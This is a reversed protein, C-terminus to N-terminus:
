PRPETKAAQSGRALSAKAERTLPADAAGQALSQLGERAEDTGIKELVMVARTQRLREPSLERRLVRGLLEEVRRRAEPSPRKKLAADLSSEAREGLNDLERMAAERLAFQDSDLDALLKDLRKPDVGEAPRLRGKLMGASTNGGAILAWVAGHAKTADSDALHTWLTALEKASLRRSQPRVAQCAASVDWVLVSGNNLGSALRQNDPSFALSRADSEHGRITLALQGSAVSWLCITFSGKDAPGSSTALLRGDPSFATAPQYSKGM